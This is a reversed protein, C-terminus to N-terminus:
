KLVYVIAKKSIMRNFENYITKDIVQIQIHLDQITEM